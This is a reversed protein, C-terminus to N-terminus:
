DTFCYSLNLCVIIYIVLLFDHPVERLFTLMKSLCSAKLGLFMNNIMLFFSSFPNKWLTMFLCLSQFDLSLHRQKRSRTQCHHALLSIIPGGFFAHMKVCIFTHEIFVLKNYIISINLIHVVYNM